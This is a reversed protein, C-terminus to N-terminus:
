AGKPHKSVIDKEKLSSLEKDMVTVMDFGSLYKGVCIYNSYFTTMKHTPLWFILRWGKFSFQCCTLLVCELSGMQFDLLLIVVAKSSM